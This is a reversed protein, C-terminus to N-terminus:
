SPFGDLRATNDCVIKKLKDEDLHGPKEDIVTRTDPWVCDPHPYDTGWIVNDTGLMDVMEDTLHEIQFTSCGQRHWYESLQRKLGHEGIKRREAEDDMRFLVFPIWGVGCEALVFKMNPYRECAGSLIISSVFESGPLQFVTLVVGRAVTKESATTEGKPTRPTLGITHFSIPLGSEDVAAWLTDWEKLYIPEQASAANLETGKLGVEAARRVLRAAEEPDRAFLCGLAALRDPNTRCFDSIYRYYIDSVALIADIDALGYGPGGPEDSGPVTGEEGDQEAGLGSTLGLLGYLADGKIGDTDQDKIRLEPTTPHLKGQKADTFFNMKEMRGVRTSLGPVYPDWFLKPKAGVGSGGVFGLQEGGAFWQEGIETGEVHPMRDRLHAPANSTFLDAPLWPIEVHCDGSIVKGTYGM